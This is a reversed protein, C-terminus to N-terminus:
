ASSDTVLAVLVLRVNKPAHAYKVRASYRLASRLGHVTACPAACGARQLTPPTTLPATPHAIPMLIGERGSKGKGM